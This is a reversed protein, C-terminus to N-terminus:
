PFSQRMIPLTYNSQENIGASTLRRLMAIHCGNRQKESSHSMSMGHETQREKYTKCDTVRRSGNVCRHENTKMRVNEIGPSEEKRGRGGKSAGRGM